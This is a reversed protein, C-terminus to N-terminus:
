LCSIIKKFCLSTYVNPKNDLTITIKFAYVAIIMDVLCHAFSETDNLALTPM